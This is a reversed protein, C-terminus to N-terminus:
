SCGPNASSRASRTITSQSSTMDRWSEGKSPNRGVYGPGARALRSYSPAVQRKGSRDGPHTLGRWLFGPPDCLARSIANSELLLRKRKCILDIPHSPANGAGLFLGLVQHLFGVRPREPAPLRVRGPRVKARPQQPDERVQVDVAATARLARRVLLRELFAVVNEVVPELRRRALGVLLADELPEGLVVDSLRERAHRVVKSVHEDEDVDRVEAVRLRRLDQVDRDAGDHRAKM